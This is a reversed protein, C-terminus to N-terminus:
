DPPLHDLSLFARELAETMELASAFRDDPRKALARGVLHELEPTIWPRSMTIALRPAPMSVQMRMTVLPDPSRFPVRGALMEFVVIGLSYLDTRVDVTHGLAQEPALYAPTGAVMGTRTLKTSGELTEDLRKLMGFDLVKVREHRRPEEGVSVIMLNDPKLDRHIIGNGHAHHLAALVQRALVLTRRPAISGRELLEGLPRGDVLEMVLYLTDDASVLERVGIINDHVLLPAAQAERRYREAIQEADPLDPLLMKIALKEGSEIHEGEYVVGTGGKGLLARLRYRDAVVRGDPNTHALSLPTTRDTVGARM